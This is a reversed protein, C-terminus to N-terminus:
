SWPLISEAPKGPAAMWELLVQYLQDRCPEFFLFHEGPLIVVRASSTKLLRAVLGERVRDNSVIQDGEALCVLVPGTVRSLERQLMRDMKWIQLCTGSTITQLRLSDRQIERQRAPNRTLAADPVPVNVAFSGAGLATFVVRAIEAAKLSRRLANLPPAVLILSDISSDHQIAWGLVTRAGFCHGLLHIRDRARSARAYQIVAELEDIWVQYRTVDGREPHPSRGSGRRDYLYVSVGSAHLAEATERFWESHSKLGHSVIVTDNGRGPWRWIPVPVGAAQLQISEFAQVALRPAAKEGIQM